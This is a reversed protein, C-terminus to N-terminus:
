LRKRFKIDISYVNNEDKSLQIVKTADIQYEVLLISQANTEASYSYTVSLDKSLNKGITIVAGGSSGPASQLVPDIQFRDLRFLEQVKSTVPRFALGAISGVVSSATNDEERLAGSGTPSAGTLLLSAIQEQSLPPDSSLNFQVRSREGLSGAMQLNVSYGKVDATALLDILPETRQTNGFTVTGSEIEYKVDQFTIKGGEDITIQGLIVPEALTGRALLDASATLRALNNRVELAASSSIHVELGVSDQWTNTASIYAPNRSKSFLATLSPAFDKTYTGSLITAEGRVLCGRSDGTATLDANTLLSLGEIWRVSVNVAQAVLRYDTISLGDLRADGSVSVEGGGIRAKLAELSARAGNWVVAAAVDELVYPSMPSKFRGKTLEIRGFFLPRAATGSLTLDGRLRGDAELGASVFPALTEPDAEIRVSGSLANAKHTDVSASLDISTGPGSLRAGSISFRGGAVRIEIPSSESLSAGAPGAAMRLKTFKFQSDSLSWDRPDLTLRGAGAIETEIGAALSPFIASMLRSNPIELAVDLAPKDSFLPGRAEATWWNPSKATLFLDGKELSIEARPADEDSVAVGLISFRRMRASAKISPKSIVGDGEAHFSVGGKFSDTLQSFLAIRDLPLAEAGLRFHYRESKLEYSGEGEFWAEGVQGRAKEIAIKGPTLNATGTMRMVAQGYIVADELVLDGLGTLSDRDGFFPLTGTLKGTVPYDLALYKLLREAPFREAEVVLDFRSSGPRAQYRASGSLSLRAEGDYGRLPHFFFTRDAVSLDSFVTGLRLGGYEANEASLRASVVPVAWTGSLDGEIKGSGKLGFPDAPGRNISRAFNTALRDVSQFDDSNITFKMRPQWDDIAFGGTFAIEGSPFKLRADHFEIFGKQISARGGGSFPLASGSPTRPTLLLEAGGDARAIADGSWRMALTLAAASAIGTHPLDLDGFFSEVSLDKGEALLEFTQPSVDLRGLKLVGSIEGGEFSAKEIRATLGSPAGTIRASLDEFHFGQADVRPFFANGLVRYKAPGGASLTAEVRGRGRFPIRVHFISELEFADVSGSVAAAVRPASLDPVEGTATLEGFAGRVEMSDVHLRGRGIDFRADLSFPMRVGDRLELLCRRSALRGSFHSTGAASLETVFGTASLTLPVRTENLIFLGSTIGIRGIRLRIASSGSKGKLGAPVNDSGDPLIRVHLEPHLASISGISLTRGVFAVHGSVTVEEAQLFPREEGPLGEVRLHHVVVGPPLLSVSLSELSVNRKLAATAARVVLARTERQFRRSSVVAYGCAFAFLVLLSFLRVPSLRSLSPTAGSESM